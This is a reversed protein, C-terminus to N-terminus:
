AGTAGPGDGATGRAAAGPDRRDLPDPGVEIALILPKALGEPYALFAGALWIGSLGIAIFVLAGLVLLWRLPRGALAPPGGCGRWWSWSGCPPWSPRARSSAAPTTPASGSLHIGVLIGFPPLVQALLTLASGPDAPDPSAPRGGWAPDLALSWVGILAPVLVVSELLTDVARYALLVGTVPNRVGTAPLHEAVAPALTPAPEPLLLVVAALGATVAACLSGVLLRLGPGPRAQREAAEYPALRAAAGLLLLGTLGSGLAAETMAVDVAGLRVWVLAVLLGYAVFGVAAGYTTRVRRHDLAGPGPDAPGPRCRRGPRLSMPGAGRPPGADSRPTGPRPRVAAGLLQGVTAGALLALLWVAILKLAGLPWAVQPLLGLVM